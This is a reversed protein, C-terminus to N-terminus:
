WCTMGSMSNNEYIRMGRSVYIMLFTAVGPYGFSSTVSYM